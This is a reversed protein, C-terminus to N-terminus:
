SLQRIPIDLLPFHRWNEDDFHWWETPLPEFGHDRMSNELINRHNIVIQPLKMYNRHAKCSFDDFATPMALEKGTIMDILTLDVATGRNHKSGEKPDAVYRPDPVLQWFIKQVSLPRYGDWIKLGLSKKALSKQIADLKYAVTEQIYCRSDQYVITNTFNHRTAYRLDVIINKNITHIDVLGMASPSLSQTRARFSKMGDLLM